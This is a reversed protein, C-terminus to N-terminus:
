SYGHSYPSLPSSRLVEYVRVEYFGRGLSNSFERSVGFGLSVFWGIPRILMMKRKKAVLIERDLLRVAM